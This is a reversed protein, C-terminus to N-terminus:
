ARKLSAPADHRRCGGLWVPLGRVPGKEAEISRERLGVERHTKANRPCTGRWGLQTLAVLVLVIIIFVSVYM